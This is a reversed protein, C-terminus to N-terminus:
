DAEGSVDTLVLERIAPELSEWEELGVLEAYQSRLHYICVNLLQNANCFYAHTSLAILNEGTLLKGLECETWRKLHSVDYFECLRLLCCLDEGTDSTALCRPKQSRGTVRVPVVVESVELGRDLQYAVEQAVLADFGQYFYALLWLLGRSSVWDPLHLRCRPEKAEACDSTFLVRFHECAAALVLRHAYIEKTGDDAQLVFIVDALEPKNLSTKIFTPVVSAAPAPPVNITPLQRKLRVAPGAVGLLLRRFPRLYGPLSWTGQTRRKHTPYGAGEPEEDSADAGEHLATFVQCPSALAGDALVLFNVNSLQHQVMIQTSHSRKHFMPQFAKLHQSTVQQRQEVAERRSETETPLPEQSWRRAIEALNAVIVELSPPDQLSGFRQLLAKPWGRYTEPDLVVLQTWALAAHDFLTCPADLAVCDRIAGPAAPPQVGLRSTPPLAPFIRFRSM